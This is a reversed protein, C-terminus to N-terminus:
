QVRTIARSNIWLDITTHNAQQTSDRRRRGANMPPIWLHVADAECEGREGDAREALLGEGGVNRSGARRQQSRGGGHDRRAPSADIGASMHAVGPDVVVVPEVVTEDFLECEVGAAEEAAALEACLRLPSVPHETEFAGIR